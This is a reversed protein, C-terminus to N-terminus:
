PKPYEFRAVSMGVNASPELSVEVRENGRRFTTTESISARWGVAQAERLLWDRASPPGLPLLLAVYEAGVPEGDEDLVPGFDFVTAAEPLPFDDPFAGPLRGHLAQEPARREQIDDDPTFVSDAPQGVTVTDLDNEDLPQRSAPVACAVVVALLFLLGSPMLRKM